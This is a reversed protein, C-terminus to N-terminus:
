YMIIYGGTILFNIVDIINFKIDEPFRITYDLPNISNFHNYLMLSGVTTCTINYTGNENILRIDPIGIKAVAYENNPCLRGSAGGEFYYYIVGATNYIISQEPEVVFLRDDDIQKIRISPAVEIRATEILRRAEANLPNYLFISITLLM